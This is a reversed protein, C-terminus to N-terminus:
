VPTRLARIAQMLWRLPATAKWSTSACIEAVTDRLAANDAALQAVTVQIQELATAQQKEQQVCSALETALAEGRAQSSALEANLRSIELHQREQEGKLRQAQELHEIVDRRTLRQKTGDVALIEQVIHLLESLNLADLYTELKLHPPYCYGQVLMLAADDPPPSPPTEAPQFPATYQRLYDEPQM